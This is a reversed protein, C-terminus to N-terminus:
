ERRWRLVIITWLFYILFPVLVFLAIWPPVKFYAFVASLGFYVVVSYYLILILPWDPYHVVLWCAFREKASYLSRLAKVEESFAEWVLEANKIYTQEGVKILKADSQRQEDTPITVLLGIKALVALEEAIDITAQGIKIQPPLKGPPLQQPDIAKRTEPPLTGSLTGSALRLAQRQEDTMSRSIRDILDQVSRDKRTEQVVLNWKVTLTEEDCQELLHYYLRKILLPHGGSLRQIESLYDRLLSVTESWRGPIDDEPKGQLKEEILRLGKEVLQRTQEKTLLPLPVVEFYASLRRLQEELDELSGAKRRGRYPVFRLWRDDPWVASTLLLRIRESSEGKLVLLGEMLASLRAPALKNALEDFSDLILVPIISEPAKDYVRRGVEGIQELTCPEKKRKLIREYSDLLSALSACTEKRDAADHFKAILALAFRSHLSEGTPASWLDRYDNESFRAVLFDKRKETFENIFRTKGSKPAGVVLCDHKGLITSVHDSFEPRPIFLDDFPSLRGLTEGM